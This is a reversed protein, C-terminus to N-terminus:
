LELKAIEAANKYVRWVAEAIIDMNKRPGVMMTQTIWLSQEALRTFMPLAGIREVYDDLTKKPYLRSAARGSYAERVYQGWNMAGYGGVIGIGEAAMAKVFAQRSLGFEEPVIRFMYLHWASQTAQPYLKAPHIGPVDALLKNLYIGNEQRKGAFKELLKIQACLVAGQFETMRFNTGRVNGYDFDLSYGGKAGNNNHIMYVKQAFFDDNTFVAGGEGSTLNKSAQFSFCGAHGITGLYKDKWRGLHAQCADEIVPIDRRNGIEMIADMDAPYGGIHVPMLCATNDTCAADMKAPDLQFTELDVDVPVPLAFHSLVSNITAIFTYPSTIVEDYPGIDLAGLSAVLATTGGNTTICHKAGCMKSYEREFREVFFDGSLRGWRGQKIIETLYEVESGENVPWGSFSAGSIPTGGLIAAKGGPTESATLITPALSAMAAAIGIKGTQAMFDRRSVINEM